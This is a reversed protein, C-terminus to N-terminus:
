RKPQGQEAGNSWLRMALVILSLLLPGAWVVTMFYEGRESERMWSRVFVIAFCASSLASEIALWRKNM